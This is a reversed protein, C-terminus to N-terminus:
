PNSLSEWERFGIRNDFQKLLLSILNGNSVIVANKYGSNVVEMVVSIARSM